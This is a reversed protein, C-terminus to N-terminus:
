CHRSCPPRALVHTDTTIVVVAVVVVMTGLFGARAQLCPTTHHRPGSPHRHHRLSCLLRGLNYVQAVQRRSLLRLLLRTSILFRVRAGCVAWLGAQPSRLSTPLCKTVRAKSTSCLATPM